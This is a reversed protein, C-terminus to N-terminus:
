DSPPWGGHGTDRFPSSQEVVNADPDNVLSVNLLSRSRLIGILTYVVVADHFVHWVLGGLSYSIALRLPLSLSLTLHM